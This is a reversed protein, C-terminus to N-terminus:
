KGDYLSYYFAVSPYGFLLGENLTDGDTVDVRYFGSDKIKAVAGATKNDKLNSIQGEDLKSSMISTDLPNFLSFGYFAVCGCIMAM